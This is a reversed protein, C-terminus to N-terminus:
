VYVGRLENIRQRLKRIKNEKVSIQTGTGTASPAQDAPVEEARYLGMQYSDMTKDIATALEERDLYGNPNEKMAVNLQVILQGDLNYKKTTQFDSHKGLLQDKNADLARVVDITTPNAPLDFENLEAYAAAIEFAQQSSLPVNTMGASRTVSNAFKTLDTNVTDNITGLIKSQVEQDGSAFKGIMELAVKQTDVQSLDGNNDVADQIILGTLDGQQLIKEALPKLSDIEISLQRNVEEEMEKAKLYKAKIEAEAQEDDTEQYQQELIQKADRIKQLTAQIPRIREYGAQLQKKEEKAFPDNALANFNKIGLEQFINQAETSDKGLGGSFEAEAIKTPYLATLILAIGMTTNITKKVYDGMGEELLVAELEQRVLNRIQKETLYVGINNM